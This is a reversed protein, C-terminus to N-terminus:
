DSEIEERIWHRLQQLASEPDIPLEAKQLIREKVPRGNPRFVLFADAFEFAQEVDHTILLCTRNKQPHASSETEGEGNESIKSPHAAIMRSITEDYLDGAHWRLLLATADNTAREDISSFPEDAFLVQPNHVIARLLAMRQRQGESVQSPYADVRKTLTDSGDLHSLLHVAIMRCTELHYGLLALPLFINQICTLTPMLYSSQLAFGFYRSRVDAPNFDKRGYVLPSRGPSRYYCIEGQGPSHHGLLGLLYLLTSKGVGSRGLVAIKAGRPIDLSLGDFVTGRQSHRAPSTANLHRPRGNKGAVYAFRLNSIQFIM